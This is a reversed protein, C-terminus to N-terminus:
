QVHCAQTPAGHSHHAPRILLFAAMSVFMLPDGFGQLIHIPCLDCLVLISIVALPALMVATMEWTYRWTSKHYLRMLAIMPLTMSAVMLWYCLLPHTIMLHHFGLPVLQPMILKHYIMMGAEMVLVMQMFHWLFRGASTALTVIQHLHTTEESITM